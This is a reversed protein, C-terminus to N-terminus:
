FGCIRSMKLQRRSFKTSACAAFVSVSVVPEQCIGSNNLLFSSKLHQKSAAWSESPSGSCVEQQGALMLPRICCWHPRILKQDASYNWLWKKCSYVSKHGSPAGSGHSQACISHLPSGWLLHCPLPPYLKVRRKQLMPLIKRSLWKKMRGKACSFKQGGQAKLSMESHGEGLYLCVSIEKWFCIFSMM